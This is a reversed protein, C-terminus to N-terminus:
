GNRKLSYRQEKYCKLFNSAAIQMHHRQKMTKKKKRIGRSMLLQTAKAQKIIAETRKQIKQLSALKMNDDLHMSFSHLCGITAVLWKSTNHTMLAFAQGNMKQYTGHKVASTIPLTCRKREHKATEGFIGQSMDLTNM